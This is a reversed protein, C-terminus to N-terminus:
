KKMGYDPCLKNFMKNYLQSKWDTLDMLLHWHCILALNMLECFFYIGSYGNWVICYLDGGEVRREVSDSDYANM